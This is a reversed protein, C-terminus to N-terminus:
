QQAILIDKSESIEDELGKVNDWDTVCILQQHWNSDLWEVVIYSYSWKYIFTPGTVKYVEWPSAEWTKYFWRNRINESKLIKIYSYEYKELQTLEKIKSGIFNIIWWTDKELANKNVVNSVEKNKINSDIDSDDKILTCGTLITAVSAAIVTSIVHKSAFDKAINCVKGVENGIESAIESALILSSKSQEPKKSYSLELMNVRSHPNNNIRM